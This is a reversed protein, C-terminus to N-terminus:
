LFNIFSFLCLFFPIFMTSRYISVSNYYYYLSILLCPMNFCQHVDQEITTWPPLNCCTIGSDFGIILTVAHWWNSYSKKM